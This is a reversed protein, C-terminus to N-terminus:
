GGPRSGKAKVNASRSWVMLRGILSRSVIDALFAAVPGRRAQGWALPPMNPRGRLIIVRGNDDTTVWSFTPASRFVM